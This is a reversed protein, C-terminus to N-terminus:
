SDFFNPIFSHMLGAGEELAPGIHLPTVVCGPRAIGVDPQYDTGEIDPQSYRVIPGCQLEFRPRM